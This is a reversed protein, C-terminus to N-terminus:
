FGAAHGDKRPESAALYAGGEVRCVIQGGGFWAPDLTRLDHGRLSLEAKIEPAMAAEVGIAGDDLIQWRPADLAAQPNQGHDVVRTLVQLHGQPQMGGGMVGFAAVPSGDRLLFAPILTQFPRKAPGAENPHGAQLTFCAGRSQLSIGTGPVVVGSGFSLYNSQILSVMTGDAAATAVYVTDGRSGPSGPSAAARAPDIGRALSDLRSPALLEALPERVFEPDAVTRGADAIGLKMAEIQSHVWAPSDAHPGADFRELVGAATLAALGQTNPPMECLQYGRYGVSVPEVWSTAHGALDDACLLGGDDRAHALIREALM